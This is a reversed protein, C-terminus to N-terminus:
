NLWYSGSYYLRNTIKRAEYLNCFKSASEFQSNSLPLKYSSEGNIWTMCNERIKLKFENKTNGKFLWGLFYKYVESLQIVRLFQEKNLSYGWEGTLSILFHFQVNYNLYFNESMWEPIRITYIKYLNTEVQRDDDYSLCRLCEENIDGTFSSKFCYPSYTGVNSGNNRCVIEIQKTSM